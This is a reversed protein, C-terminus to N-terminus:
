LLYDQCEKPSMGFEKKFARFFSSYDSFGYLPYIKSILLGSLIADRCAHLRKKTVYQHLSIGFERTFTHSIYYKSLYFDHAITDLSLDDELHLHIYNTISATLDIEQTNDTRIFEEYVTRSLFLMLSSITLEIQSQKGFRNSKIEEILQFIDAQIRNFQFLDCHYCYTSTDTTHSFIFGCDSSLKILHECYDKSLWFIFRRYPTVLDHFEPYHVTDPPILFFCGPSILFTQEKVHLSVNGQLFFYFEYYNHTHPLVANGPKDSYYYIEFDKSVMYQRTSFPTLLEQKRM